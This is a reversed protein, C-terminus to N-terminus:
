IAIRILLARRRRVLMLEMVSVACRLGQTLEHHTKVAGGKLSKRRIHSDWASRLGFGRGKRRGRSVCLAGDRGGRLVNLGRGERCRLGGSGGICSRSGACCFCLLV